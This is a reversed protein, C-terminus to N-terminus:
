VCLFTRSMLELTIAVAARNQVYRSRTPDHSSSLLTLFPLQPVHFFNSSSSMLVSQRDVKSRQGFGVLNFCGASGRRGAAVVAEAM